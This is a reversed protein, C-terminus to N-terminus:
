AGKIIAAPLEGTLILEKPLTLGFRQELLEFAPTVEGASDMDAVLAADDGDVDFLYPAEDTDIDFCLRVSGDHSYRFHPEPVNPHETFYYLEYTHVDGYWIVPTDHRGLALEWQGRGIAFSLDGVSGYRVGAMPYHRGTARLLEKLEDEFAEQTRPGTPRPQEDPVLRHVLDEPGLGRALIVCYGGPLPHNEEAVWTIGDSM